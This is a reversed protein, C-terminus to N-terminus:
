FFIISNQRLLKLNIVVNQWDFGSSQTASPLSYKKQREEPGNLNEICIHKRTSSEFSNLYACKSLAKLLYKDPLDHRSHCACKRQRKRVNYQQNETNQKRKREIHATHKRGASRSRRRRRRKSM